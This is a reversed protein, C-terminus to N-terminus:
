DPKLQSMKSVYLKVPPFAATLMASSSSGKWFVSDGLACQQYGRRETHKRRSCGGKLEKPRGCRESAGVSAQIDCSLSNIRM